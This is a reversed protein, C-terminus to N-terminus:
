TPTQNGPTQNRKAEERLVDNMADQVYPYAWWVAAMGFLAGTITRLLWNSERLGILQTGGDIAMPLAAVVFWKLPLPRLWTRVFAFIVGAVFVGGYIAVDRQCLAVKWGIEDNGIFHREILLNPTAPMGAALLEEAHPAHWPGFLFYSHDPLQHCTFSYLFYIASAPADWGLYIFLPALFPVLAYAGWAINFCALWHRAIWQVVASAGRANRSNDAPTSDAPPRSL